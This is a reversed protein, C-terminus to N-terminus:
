YDADMLLHAVMNCTTTKGNTGTIGIVKLKRAPYGYVVAAVFAKIKHYFLLFANQDNIYKRLLKKLLNM